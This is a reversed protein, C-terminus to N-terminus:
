KITANPEARVRVHISHASRLVTATYAAQPLFVFSRGCAAAGPCRVCSIENYRENHRRLLSPEARHPSGRRVLVTADSYVKPRSTLSRAFNVSDRPIVSAGREQADALLRLWSWESPSFRRQPM